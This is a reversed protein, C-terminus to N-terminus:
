QAAGRLLLTLYVSGWLVVIIVAFVVLVAITGKPRPQEEAKM